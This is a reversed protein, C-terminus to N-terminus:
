VTVSRRTADNTTRDGIRFPVPVARASPLLVMREEDPPVSFFLEVEMSEGRLIDLRTAVVRMAGDTGVVLAKRGVFEVNTAWGPLYVAVFARYGNKKVISGDGAVPIPQGLPTRNDIRITARVRRFRGAPHEVALKVSPRIYWDLKNGGHNQITVMFGDRELPGDLGLRRWAEQEAPRNSWAMLHRGAASSRVARALDALDAGGEALVRFAEAALRSFEHHRELQEDGYAVYLDHMLLREVNAADYRRGDVEVPGIVELLARVGLVDIQLAGDVRSLGSRQAMAAYIPATAPFNPSSGVNRWETGPSLWGYLSELEAPLPVPDDLVVEGTSRFGGAQLRGNTAKLVGVQLVMGGARMEANNAALVVYTSPGSLFGRLGHVAVSGDALTRKLRTLDNRLERDASSVPPLFGGTSPLRVGDVLRRLRTTETELLELLQLRAAPDGSADLRPEIRAVSIAAEAGLEAVSRSASRLWRAPRGAIPIKSLAGLWVSKRARRDAKALLASGRRAEATLRGSGTFGEDTLAAFAARGARLDHAVAFADVLVLAAWALVFAVVVLLLVRVRKRRRGSPSAPLPAGDVAALRDTTM